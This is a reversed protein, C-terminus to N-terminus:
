RKAGAADLAAHIAADLTDAVEAVTLPIDGDTLYAIYKQQIKQVHDVTRAQSVSLWRELRATASPESTWTPPEPKIKDMFSM